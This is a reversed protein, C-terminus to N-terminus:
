ENAKERTEQYADFMESGKLHHDSDIAEVSYVTTMKRGSVFQFEYCLMGVYKVGRGEFDSPVGERISIVQKPSSISSNVIDGVKFRPTKM